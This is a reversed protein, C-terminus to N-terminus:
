VEGITRHKNIQQSIHFFWLHSHPLEKWNQSDIESDIKTREFSESVKTSKHAVFCTVGITLIKKVVVNNYELRLM